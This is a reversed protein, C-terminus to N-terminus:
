DEFGSGTTKIRPGCAGAGEIKVLGGELNLNQGAGIEDGPKRGDGSGARSAGGLDRYDRGTIQTVAPNETPGSTDKV